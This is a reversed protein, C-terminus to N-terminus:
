IEEGGRDWCVARAHHWVALSTKSVLTIPLSDQLKVASINYM